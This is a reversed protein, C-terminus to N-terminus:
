AFFFPAIPQLVHQCIPIKKAKEQPSIFDISNPTMQYALESESTSYLLSHNNTTWWEKSSPNHYYSNLYTSFHMNLTVL